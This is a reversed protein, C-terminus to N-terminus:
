QQLGEEIDRLARRLAEDQAARGTAVGQAEEPNDVADVGNVGALQRVRSRISEPVDEDRSVEAFITGAAERNGALMHAIGTLEGATGFWPNGPVALPKLRAVIDAPKMSDFELITQRLLAIDRFPQPASADAVLDAYQKIAADRNGKQVQLAAALLQANAAYGPQGSAMVPENASSAGDFNNRRAADLATIFEESTVGAAESQQHQYYLWGALAALGLVVAALLWRGYRAWFGLLEDRRLADDVEQMFVDGQQKQKDNRKEEGSGPATTAL